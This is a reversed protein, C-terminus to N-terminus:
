IIHILHEKIKNYQSQNKKHFSNIRKRCLLSKKQYYGKNDYRRIKKTWEEIDFINEVIDGAGDIVEQPGGLGSSVSPIGNVMAEVPTRGFGEYCKSTNVLLRTKKYAIKMDSAQPMASVNPLSILNEYARKGLIDTKGVVLFKKQPLRKAIEYMLDAGKTLTPATFLIKDADKELRTKYDEEKIESNLLLSNQGTFFLVESRLFESISIVMEADKIGKISTDRFRKLLPYQIKFIWSLYKFFSKKCKRPDVSDVNPCFFNVGRVFIAKRIPLNEISPVLIGQTLILDFKEKALLEKLIKNWWWNQVNIKFFSKLFKFYFPRKKGTIEYGRKREFINNDNPTIVTIEFDKSLRDLFAFLSREGGGRPPILNAASVLIKKKM